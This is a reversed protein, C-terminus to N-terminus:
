QDLAELVMATKLSWMAITAQSAMDVDCREGMLLPQMFRQAQVELASM